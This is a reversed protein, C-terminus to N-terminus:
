RPGVGNAGVHIIGKAHAANLAGAIQIALDLLEETKLMGRAIRQRLTEGELLEMTIFHRGEHMGIEHVVCINPHNLAAATRAERLFRERASPNDLAEASLFKLAVNRGLTTDEARYVVGMGGGGIKEVIRYHSVTQGIESM